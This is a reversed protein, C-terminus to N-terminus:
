LRLEKNLLIGLYKCSNKTYIFLPPNYISERVKQTSDNTKSVTIANFNLIKLQHLGNIGFPLGTLLAYRKFLGFLISFRM